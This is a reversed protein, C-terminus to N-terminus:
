NLPVGNKFVRCKFKNNGARSCQTNNTIDKTFYVLDNKDTLRLISYYIIGGISGIIFGLLSGSLTTCKNQTEVALNIGILIMLFTLLVPNMQNNIRMPWVLYAMVFSLVTTSLSPSNFITEGDRVTFPAPLVNCFPSAYDDQESKLITKLLYVIGSILLIGSNLILGKLLQNNLISTLLIFFVVFLPSILSIFQFLNTLTLTIAVGM